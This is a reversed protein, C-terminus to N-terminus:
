LSASECFPVDRHNFLHTAHTKNKILGELFTIKDTKEVIKFRVSCEVIAISCVKDIILGSATLFFTM